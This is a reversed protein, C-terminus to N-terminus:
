DPSITADELTVLMKSLNGRETGFFDPQKRERTSLMTIKMKSM